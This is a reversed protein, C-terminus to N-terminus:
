VIVYLLHQFVPCDQLTDSLLSTLSPNLVPITSPLKVTQGWSPTHQSQQPISARGHGGEVCCGFTFPLGSELPSHLVLRWSHPLNAGRLVEPKDIHFDDASLLH